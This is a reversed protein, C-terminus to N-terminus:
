ISEREAEGRASCEKGVRREESRPAAGISPASDRNAQSNLLTFQIYQRGNIPLNQIQAQTISQSVDSRQTEVLAAQGSVTVTQNGGQVSLRPNFVAPAGLTLTISPNVLKAFGQAEVTLSYTGPPLGVIEYRGSSDSTASRTAGTAANTVTVQAKPVGLGQQDSVTGSIQVTNIQALAVVGLFAACGLAIAIRLLRRFQPMAEGRRCTRQFEFRGNRCSCALWLLAM